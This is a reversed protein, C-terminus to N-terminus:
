AHHCFVFYDIIPMSLLLKFTENNNLIKGVSIKSDTMGSTQELKMENSLHIVKESNESAKEGRSSRFIIIINECAKSHPLINLNQHYKKTM